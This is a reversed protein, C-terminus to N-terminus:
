KHSGVVTIHGKFVEDGDPCQIVYYYTDDPLKQGKYSAAWDNNYNKTAFVTQGQKSFIVVECDPYAPLNEVFWTDNYGDNNATILNAPTFNFDRLVTIMVTDTDQCGNEDTVLLIYTMDNAPTCMPFQLTPDDLFTGPSWLYDM